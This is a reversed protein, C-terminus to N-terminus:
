QEGGIEQMLANHKNIAIEYDIETKSTALREADEILAKNQQRLTLLEQKMVLWEDLVRPIFNYYACAIRSVFEYHEKAGRVLDEDTAQATGQLRKDDIM